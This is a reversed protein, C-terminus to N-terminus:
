IEGIITVFFLNLLLFFLLNLLRMNKVFFFDPVVRLLYFIEYHTHTYVPWEKWQFLHFQGTTGLTVIILANRKETENRLMEVERLIQSMVSPSLIGESKCEVIAKYVFHGDIKNKTIM